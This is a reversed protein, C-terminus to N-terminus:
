RRTPAPREDAWWGRGYTWAYNKSDTSEPEVIGSKAYDLALTPLLLLNLVTSTILGGLIVAAMPFEIEHGPKNGALVLPVLGLGACLATMLIPALREEAGRIILAPGFPEGEVLHLHQYHSLLMIGNRAAIGFVTVFGVLSGLSLVSGTLFVALLGGILAFPLTLFVLWTLRWSRFEVHLLVIIGLVAVGALLLLRRSSEQLAAYEGLFEPHYGRDFSLARVRLEIERAVSGLDRGGANCTVDIRRSSNERRIENPAPEIAIDAVDGLPVRAGNPADILMDNLAHVDGRVHEAGWVTRQL